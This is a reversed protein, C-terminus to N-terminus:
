FLLVPVTTRVLERIRINARLHLRQGCKRADINIVAGGHTRRQATPARSQWLPHPEAADINTVAGGMRAAHFLAFKRSLALARDRQATATAGYVNVNVDM